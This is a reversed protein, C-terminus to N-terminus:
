GYDQAVLEPVTSATHRCHTLHEDTLVKDLQQAQSLVSHLHLITMTLPPVHRARLLNASPVISPRDEGSGAGCSHTPFAFDDVVVRHM